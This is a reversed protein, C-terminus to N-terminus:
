SSSVCDSVTVDFTDDYTDDTLWNGKFVTEPCANKTINVPMPYKKFSKPSGGMNIIEDGCKFTLNMGWPVEKDTRKVSVYRPCVLNDDAKKKKAESSSAQSSPGSSGPSPASGSASSLFTLVGVVLLVFAVVAVVAIIAKKDLAM